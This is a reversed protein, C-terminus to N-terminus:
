AEDWLAASPPPVLANGPPEDGDDHAAMPPAAPAEDLTDPEDDDGEDDGDEGGEPAAEAAGTGAPGGRKKRRRRRKKRREDASAADGAEAPVGSEDASVALPELTDEDDDEVEAPAIAIGHMALERRRKRRDHRAAELAAREEESVDERKEDRRGGRKGKDDEHDDGGLFARGDDTPDVWNPDDLASFEDQIREEVLDEEDDLDNEDFWVNQAKAESRLRATEELAARRARIAEQEGDPLQGLSLPQISRQHQSLGVRGIVRVPIGYRDELAILERRFHNNVHDAVEPAVTVIIKDVLRTSAKAEIDRMVQRAMFDPAPVTGRGDCTACPRHTQIDIAQKLRQRNIELLGNESIRTVYTRAKDARLSEKLVREVQRNAKTTAMDIFDVVILGGLDRLRLQRAIEKAAELNTHLATEEQSKARTSRGSNVDIATLAETRDIVISGGSPLEVRRAFLADLQEEVSYRSFLPVDDEWPKVIEASRPMVTRVYDCAARYASAGQIVVAEFEQNFHDRIMRVVLDSDEHLLVPGRKGKRRRGRRGGTEAARLIERWSRILAAADRQLETKTRNEGATRVIFGHDDPIRLSAAVEKMRRRKSDDSIRRSVGRADDNPMLVVYRGALSVFNTLAAGKQGQADKVVQVILERGRRIVEEIRAKGDKKPREHWSSEAIEDFPLFGQKEEGFDVFCANLSAEVNAVIGRYVNGKLSGGEAVEIEFQDLKGDLLIAARVEEPRAADVL